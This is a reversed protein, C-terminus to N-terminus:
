IYKHAKLKKDGRVLTVDATVIDTHYDKCTKGLVKSFSLAPSSQGGQILTCSCSNQVLNM